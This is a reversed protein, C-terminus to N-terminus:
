KKVKLNERTEKTMIKRKFNERTGVKGHDYYFRVRGDLLDFEIVEGSYIRRYHDFTVLDTPIGKMRFHYGVSGKDGVLKDAYVKKMIFYSESAGIVKEGELFNTPSDFDEHCQGLEAGKLECGYRFLYAKELAKLLDSRIHMSDTDTYFIGPEGHLVGVEIEEALATVRGIFRRAMALVNSGFINFSASVDRNLLVIEFKDLGELEEIRDIRYANASFFEHFNNVKEYVGTEKNKRWKYKDIILKEKGGPKLISKGYISNMMLKTVLQIPHKKNNKRFNFLNQISERIETRRQGTWVVAADAEFEADQFDILNFLDIANVWTDIQEGKFNMYNNLKTKKDKICLMPFHLDRHTYIKTVHLCGDKYPKNNIEGFDADPSVFSQLFSERTILRKLFIPEGDTIWLKSMASPYLSVFDYDQLYENFSQAKFHFEGNDRVMCRGGRITKQILARLECKPICWNHKPVFPEDRDNTESFMVTRQFYEYGISSATRFEWLNLCFPPNGNIGEVAKGYLLDAFNIMAYCLCNVDQKCYILAYEKYRIQPGSPLDFILEERHEDLVKDFDVLQEDTFQRAFVDLPCYGFRYLQFMDFTYFKYPYVEKRITKKQESTLYQEAARKLSCQFIPLSDWFDIKIKKHLLNSKYVGKVSYLVNDKKIQRIDTLKGLIFSFDYKLNHFYVRLKTRFVKASVDVGYKECFFELLETTCDGGWFAFSDQGQFTIPDYHMENNKMSYLFGKAVVLYPKHFQENTSSEFDAFFLIRLAKKEIYQASEYYEPGFVMGDSHTSIFYKDDFEIQEDLGFNEYMRAYEYANFKRLLGEMKLEELVRVFPKNKGNIKVELHRMFHGEWYAIQVEKENMRKNPTKPLTDTQIKFKDETEHYIRKVKFKLGFKEYLKSFISTTVGSGYILGTNKVMNYLEPDIQDKLAYLFCPVSFIPDYTAEGENELLKEKASFWPIQFMEELMKQNIPNLIFKANESSSLRAKEKDLDYGIFGGNRRRNPAEVRIRPMSQWLQKLGRESAAGLPLHNPDYISIHTLLYPADRYLGTRKHTESEQLHAPVDSCWDCNTIRWNEWAKDPQVSTDTLFTLNRLRFSVAYYRAHRTLVNKLRCMVFLPIRQDHEVRTAEELIARHVEQANEPNIEYSVGYHIGNALNELIEDPIDDDHNDPDLREAYIFDDDIPDTVQIDPEPDEASSIIDPRVIGENDFIDPSPDEASSIVDPRRINQSDDSSYFVDPRRIDQSNESMKRIFFRVFFNSLLASM